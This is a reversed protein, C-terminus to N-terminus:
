GQAGTRAVSPGGGLAAYVPRFYWMAVAVVFPPLD